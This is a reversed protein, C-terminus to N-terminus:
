LILLRCEAFELIRDVCSYLAEAYAVLSVVEAAKM